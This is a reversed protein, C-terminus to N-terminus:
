FELVLNQNDALSMKIEDPFVNLKTIYFGKWLIKVFGRDQSLDGEYDLYLKRHPNKKSCLIKKQNLLEDFKDSSTEYTELHTETELFIDLHEKILDVRHSSITSRNM